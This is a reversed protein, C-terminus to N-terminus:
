PSEGLTNRSCDARQFASLNVSVRSWYLRRLSFMRPGQDIPRICPETANPRAQTFSVTKPTVRASGDDLTLQPRLYSGIWASAWPGFTALFDKAREDGADAAGLM